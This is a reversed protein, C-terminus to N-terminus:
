GFLGLVGKSMQARIVALDETQTRIAALHETQAMIAALHETQTRIVALHDAIDMLLHLLQAMAMAGVGAFLLSLGVMVGASRVAMGAIGLLAALIGGIFLAPVIVRRARRDRLTAGIM